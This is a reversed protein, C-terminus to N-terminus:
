VTLLLVEGKLLRDQDLGAIGTLLRAEQGQVRDELSVQPSGKPHRTTSGQSAKRSHAPSSGSVVPSSKLVGGAGADLGEGVTMPQPGRFGAFLTGGISSAINSPSTGRLMRSFVGPGTEASHYFHSHTEEDSRKELVSHMSDTRPLGEEEDATNYNKYNYEHVNGTATAVVDVAVDEVHESHCPLEGGTSASSGDCEIFEVGGDDELPDHAADFEGGDDYNNAKIGTWNLGSTLGTQHGATHGAATHGAGTHGAGTHGSGTHGAATHGSQLHDMQEFRHGSAQPNSGVGGGTQFSSYASIGEEGAARERIAKNKNQENAEPGETAYRLSDQVSVATYVKVDIGGEKNPVGAQPRAQKNPSGSSYSVSNDKMTGRNNGTPTETPTYNPTRIGTRIDRSSSGQKRENREPFRQGITHRPTPSGKLGGIKDRTTDTLGAGTRRSATGTAGAQTVGTQTTTSAGGGGSKRRSAPSFSIMQRHSVNELPSGRESGRGRLFQQTSALSASLPPSILPSMTPHPVEYRLMRSQNNQDMRNMGTSSTMHLQTQLALGPVPVPQNRNYKSKPSRFIRGPVM